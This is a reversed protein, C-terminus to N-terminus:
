MSSREAGVRKMMFYLARYVVIGAALGLSAGCIVDLPYHVGMYVRSYAVMCAWVYFIRTFGKMWKRMLVASLYAIGFHNAAHSSVFGYLGGLYPNGQQDAIVHLMGALEPEHTPRLRQVVNKICHLNLFDTCFILAAYALLILGTNKWGYQRIFFVILFAYLPSWIIPQSVWWMFHDLEVTHGKNVALLLSTDWEPWIM